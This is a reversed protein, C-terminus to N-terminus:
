IWGNEYNIPAGTFDEVKLKRGIIAELCKVHLLISEAGKGNRPFGSSDWVKDQVMYGEGPAIPKFCCHCEKM